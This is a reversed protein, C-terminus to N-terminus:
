SVAKVSRSGQIPASTVFDFPHTGFPGGTVVDGFFSRQLEDSAGPGISVNGDLYINKAKITADNEAKLVANNEPDLTLSVLEEGEENLRALRISTDELFEMITNTDTQIFVQSSKLETGKSTHRFVSGDASVLRVSGDQDLKLYGLGKPSQIMVEGEKLAFRGKRIFDENQGWMKVVRSQHNGLRMFLVYTGKTPAFQDMATQALPIPIISGDVESKVDIRPSDRGSRDKATTNVATVRGFQFDPRM